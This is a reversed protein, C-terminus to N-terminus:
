SDGWSSRGDGKLDIATGMIEPLPKFVATFFAKGTALVERLDRAAQNSHRRLDAATGVAELELAKSLYLCRYLHYRQSVLVLSKAGFIEKARRLSSWSDFGAHDLFIDEEPVGLSLTLEKMAHVEDYHKQGHDGSLLIKPAAGKRYLEVGKKVREELMPTPSGDAYVGCGFVLIADAPHAAAQDATLIQRKTTEKVFISFGLNFVFLLLLLTSIGRLLASIRRRSRKKRRFAAEPPRQPFPAPAPAPDRRRAAPPQNGGAM